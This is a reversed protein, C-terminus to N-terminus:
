PGTGLSECSQPVPSIAEVLRRVADVDITGNRQGQKCAASRVAFWEPRLDRLLLIQQLGLSGALAIKPLKVRCSSLLNSLEKKSIWDLLTTGDKRYTDLLFVEWGQNRVFDLVEIPPPAEARRWDAYAVAVPKCDPIAQRLGKGALALGDRWALGHCRALGWKVYGLGHCNPLAIEQGKMWEGLAASVPRRGGVARVVAALTADDARGLSGREPDKVDIIDAGGALAPEVEAESRVSVLLAM